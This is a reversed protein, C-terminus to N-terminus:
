VDGGCCLVGVVCCLMNLNNPQFSTGTIKVLTMSPLPTSSMTLVRTVHPGRITKILVKNPDYQLVVEAFRKQSSNM